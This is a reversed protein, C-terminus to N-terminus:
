LIKKLVRLRHTYKETQTNFIGYHDLLDIRVKGSSHIISAGGPREAHSTSQANKADKGKPFSSSSGVIGVHIIKGEENDFFALDGKQAEEVFNLAEGKEAQQYADRPLRIGNLRFVMQTFGSCDIGFPTRGGWLYPSNLFMRATRIISNRNNKKSLLVSKGRFLVEEEGISFKGKKLHPLVSGMILNWSNETRGMKKVLEFSIRQPENSLKLFEEEPISQYQKRDVWCEYDDHALKVLAWKEQEVLIKFHEGFLLQTVMESKDFPQSRGPILSLNCIGYM